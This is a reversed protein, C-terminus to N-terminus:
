VPKVEAFADVSLNRKQVSFFVPSKYRVEERILIIQIFITNIHKQLCSLKQFQLFLCKCRAGSGGPAKGQSLPATPQSMQRLSLSNLRSSFRTIEKDKKDGECNILPNCLISGM